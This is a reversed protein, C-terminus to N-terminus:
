GQQAKLWESSLAMWSTTMGALGVIGEDFQIINLGTAPIIIDILDQMLQRRVAKSERHPYFQLRQIDAAITADEYNKGHASISKEVMAKRLGLTRIKHLSSFVSMSLAFLWAKYALNQIKSPNSVKYFNITNVLVVAEASYYVFMGTQKLASTVRLLEDKIAMSKIANQGFEIQKLLRFFKRAVSLNNKLDNWRQVADKPAGTRFLYFVYFRAYYQIFRCFKERGVTTALLRNVSDVASSM